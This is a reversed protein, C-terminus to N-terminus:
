RATDTEVKLGECIGSARGYMLVCDYYAQNRDYGQQAVHWREVAQRLGTIEEDLRQLRLAIGPQKILGSRDFQARLSDSVLDLSDAHREYVGVSEASVDSAYLVPRPAARRVITYVLFGSLLVLLIVLARYLKTM